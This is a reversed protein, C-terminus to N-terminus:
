EKSILPQTERLWVHVASNTPAATGEPVIGETNGVTLRRRHPRCAAGSRAMGLEPAAVVARVNGAAVESALQRM